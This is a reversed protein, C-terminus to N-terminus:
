DEDNSEEYPRLEWVDDMYLTGAQGTAVIAKGRVTFAPAYERGSGEFANKETWTDKAFDYEWCNSLISANSGLFVYAKGELVFSSGNERVISWDTNYNLATKKTWSDATPDYEYFDTLKSGNNSGTCVYAKDNYVFATAGRRKDGGISQVKTWQKGSALTPDFRYFDVKDSADSGYGTGIYGYNKIGFGVAKTRAGGPFDDKQTWKNLAPDYEWVDSLKVDGDYGTGIYGKGNVSFGVANIRGNGPFPAIQTWRDTEPDYAWFDKMYGDNTEDDSNYGLGLYAKNEIVFSVASGRPTGEFSNKKVWNGLTSDSSKNCGVLLFLGLVITWFTKM